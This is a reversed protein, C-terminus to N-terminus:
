KVNLPVFRPEGERTLLLFLVSKAGLKKGTELLVKIEAATKVPEQAVEVIVDGVRIKREAAQSNPEVASVIVGQVTPPIRYQRRAADTIPTTSFGMEFKTAELEGAKAQKSELKEGDELRGLKIKLVQEKGARVLKVEVEKDVSTDAVLRPLDKAEVIPKGDFEVIVDGKKLGAKDSPGTATVGAVLAGRSKGLQLGEAIDDTVGQIRIGLWGRRTEGFEKLQAIVRSVSAAPIAFGLGISGGTPSLIATNVGIVEGAMNFLPGGSNGKNIAADTQLFSDYPGANIDRNRASVIGATVTGGLGFPNGIALVWDGVRMKESDGFNVAKLPKEPTVKLLALDSKTDKGLLKAKLKTGNTFSVTIEDAGDIVHNNTVVLGSADIVFGSGLSSSKRPKDDQKLNKELFEQFFEGFPSGEPFQPMPIQRADSQVTQTTSINVVSETLQEALDAFSSPAGAKPAFGLDLAQTPAYVAVAIVSALLAARSHKLVSAIM